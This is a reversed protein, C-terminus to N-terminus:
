ETLAYNPQQDTYNSHLRKLIEVKRHRAFTLPNIPNIQTTVERERESATRSHRRRTLRRPVINRPLLNRLRFKKRTLNALSHKTGHKIGRHQNITKPDFHKACTNQLIQRLYCPLYLTLIMIKREGEKGM